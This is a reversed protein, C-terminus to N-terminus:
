CNFLKKRQRCRYILNARIRVEKNVLDGRVCHLLHKQRFLPYLRPGTHNSDTFSFAWMPDETCSHSCCTGSDRVSNKVRVRYQQPMRSQCLSCVTSCCSTFEQLMKTRFPSSLIKTHWSCPPFPNFKSFYKLPYFYVIWVKIVMM